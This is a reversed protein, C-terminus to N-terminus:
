DVAVREVELVDAALVRRRDELTGRALVVATPRGDRRLDDHRAIRAIRRRELIEQGLPAARADLNPGRLAALFPAQLLECGLVGCVRERGVGCNSLLLAQAPDL